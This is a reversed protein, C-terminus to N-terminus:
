DVRPPKLGKLTKIAGKRIALVFRDLESHGKDLDGGGIMQVDEPPIVFEGGAAIIPIERAEGGASLLRKARLRRPRKMQPLDIMGEHPSMKAAHSALMHGLIQAGAQSNGDGIASVTDSPVIYSGSKVNIPLRDSRGPVSSNLLGSPFPTHTAPDGLGAQNLKGGVAYKRAQALARDLV